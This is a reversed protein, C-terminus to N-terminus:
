LDQASGDRLHRHLRIRTRLFSVRRVGGGFGILEIEEKRMSANAALYRYAADIDLLVEEDSVDILARAAADPNVFSATGGRRSLLDPALAAYGRLALARAVARINEGLGTDTDIVIIGASPPMARPKSLYGVATLGEGPYKVWASEIDEQQPKAPSFPSAASGSSSLFSVAFPYATLEAIRKLCSRRNM